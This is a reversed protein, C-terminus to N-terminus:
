PYAAPDVSPITVRQRFIHVQAAHNTLFNLYAVQSNTLAQAQQLTPTEMIGLEIDVYAPVANSVFQYEPDGTNEAHYFINSNTFVPNVSINPDMWWGFNLGSLNNSANGTYITIVTRLKNNTVAYSYQTVPTPILLGNRDYARIRFDVVGDIVRSFSAPPPPPDGLNLFRNVQGAINESPGAALPALTAMPPNNTSFRYLTGVGNTADNRILRYGVATWQQNSRTLFYLSMLSFNTVDGSNMPWAYNKSGFAPFTYFNLANTFYIHSTADTAYFSFYTPSMQQLDRSILDLAARGADQYDVNSLGVTFAKRTQNFMATLGLIIVVLLAVTVMIEILSLGRRSARQSEEFTSGPNM